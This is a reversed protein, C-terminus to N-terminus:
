QSRLFKWMRMCSDKLEFPPADADLFELWGIRGYDVIAIVRACRHRDGFAREYVQGRIFRTVPLSGNSGHEQRLWLARVLFWVRRWFSDVSAADLTQDDLATVPGLFNPTSAEPAHEPMHGYLQTEPSYTM